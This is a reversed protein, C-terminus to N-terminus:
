KKGKKRKAKAITGGVSAKEVKTAGSVGSSNLPDDGKESIGGQTLASAKQRGKKGKPRYTSRDRLPMWREPDAPKSPDSDKPLRSKRVRKKIPKAADEAARKRNTDAQPASPAHPVGAEELAAADIGSILRNTSTLKDVEPQVKSPSTTAHSAVFGATVFRDNPEQEHLSDFIEGAETLDEPSPSELLLAGAARLLSRPPKSKHRWYSAARALESKTHAKRGQLAYLSVLVALLGPAFRVDGDTAATSEDLRKLFAELVHVASAHNGTLMYLQIITLLLGVDYPRKELLSLIQKVGAKGQQNKAHAAAHLVSITNSIASTTPLQQQQLFKSTSAVVGEYKLALLDITYQNRRRISEQFDFLKDTMPLDPTSHFLRFSLYPNSSQHSHVLANIKAVTKTSLDPIDRITIETALTEAEETKGLRCLVFLQQVSIPLSEARKETESLDDLANCLDKARKLLVEGQGLEGRAISGCAANYATEFAEMDERSPKQKQALHGQGSWELQADLASSNIRLDNEESGNAAASRALEKYVDAAQSFKELRYSTQAGVQRIGREGGAANVIREAEVYNGLKYQVYAQELPIREKLKDGGDEIVRLADDYRDLKLLAVIKVHQAELDTKSKKLTSNCAKLVEEHDEITSRRLLASLSQTTTAAM